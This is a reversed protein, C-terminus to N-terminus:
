KPIKNNALCPPPYLATNCHLTTHHLTTYHLTTHHLTTYHLTTYHLTTYNYHLTSPPPLVCRQPCKRPQLGITKCPTLCGTEHRSTHDFVGRRPSKSCRGCTCFFNLANPALAEAFGGYATGPLGKPRPNLTCSGSM